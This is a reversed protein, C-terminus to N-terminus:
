GTSTSGKRYELVRSLYLCKRIMLTENMKFEKDYLDAFYLVQDPQYGKRRLEDTTENKTFGIEDDFYSIIVDRFNVEGKGRRKRTLMLHEIGRSILMSMRDDILILCMRRFSESQEQKPAVNDTQSQNDTTQRATIVFDGAEEEEMDM